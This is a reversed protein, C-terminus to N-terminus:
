FFIGIKKAVKKVNVTLTSEIDKIANNEKSDPIENDNMSEKNKNEADKQIIDINETVQPTDENADIIDNKNSTSNENLNSIPQVNANSIPEVNTCVSLTNNDEIKNDDTNAKAAILKKNEMNTM